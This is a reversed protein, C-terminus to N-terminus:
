FHMEQSITAKVGKHVFIKSDQLVLVIQDYKAMDLNLANQQRCVKDVLAPTQMTMKGTQTDVAMNRLDM